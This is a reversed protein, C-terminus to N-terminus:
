ACSPCCPTSSPSSRRCGSTATACSACTAPPSWPPPRAAHRARLERPRRAVALGAAARPRGAGGPLPRDRGGGAAPLARAPAAPGLPVRPRDRDRPRPGPRRAVPARARGRPRALVGRARPDGPHQRRGRLARHARALRRHRGPARPGGRPRRAGDGLPGGAVDRPRPPHRARAGAGGGGRGRHAGAGLPRRRSRAGTRRARRLAARRGRRRAPRRRDARRDRRRRPARPHTRRGTHRARDGPRRLRQDGVARTRRAVGRRPRRARRRLRELEADEGEIAPPARRSSRWPWSGPWTTPRRPAACPWRWTGCASGSWGAWRRTSRPARAPSSWCRGGGRPSPPSSTPRPRARARAPRVGSSSTAAPWCRRSWPGSTPTRTWCWPPRPRRPSTEVSTAAPRREALAAQAGPDGAAAAVLDDGALAEVSARLEAAADLAPATFCGLVLHPAVAFGPCSRPPPPSGAPPRGSARSRRAAAAPWCTRVGRRAPVRRRGPAPGPGPQGPRRRGPLPRLGRPRRRGPAGPRPPAGGAGPAGRRGPEGPWTAVGCALYLTELGREEALEAATQRIAAARRRTEAPDGGPALRALSVPRGALLDALADADAATLDLLESGLAGALREGAVGPAPVLTRAWAEAVEAVRRHRGSEVQSM